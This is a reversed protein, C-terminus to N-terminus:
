SLKPTGYGSMIPKTNWSLKRRLINLKYRDTFTKERSLKGGYVTALM